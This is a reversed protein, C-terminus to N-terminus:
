EHSEHEVVVNVTQESTPGFRVVYTGVTLDVTHKVALESCAESNTKTTAPTEGGAAPLRQMPVDRSLGFIFEGGHDVVFTVRGARQGNAEPLSIEYRTHDSGIEPAGTDEATATM